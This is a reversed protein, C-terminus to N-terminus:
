KRRLSTSKRVANLVGSRTREKEKEKPQEREMEKTRIKRRNEEEEKLRLKEIERNIRAQTREAAADYVYRVKHHHEDSSSSLSATDDNVNNGNPLHNNISDYNDFTTPPSSHPFSSASFSNLSSTPSVPQSPVGLTDDDARRKGLAKASPVMPGEDDTPSEDSDPRTTYVAGYTSGPYHGHAQPGWGSMLSNPIGTPRPPHPLSSSSNNAATTYLFNRSHSYSHSHTHRVSSPPSPSRIPSPSRSRTRTSSPIPSRPGLPPLPPPALHDRENEHLHNPHHIEPIPPPPPIGVLPSGSGGGGQELQVHELQAITRRDMRWDYKSKEEAQRELGVRTLDEYMRLADQLEGNTRLIAALLKEAETEKVVEGQELAEVRSKEAQATAWPIQAFILEHSNMCKQHFEQIVDGDLDQPKAFTLSEQLLAANGSGLKCEQFLRRIDEELPIIRNRSSHHKKPKRPKDPVSPPPEHAVPQATSPNFMADNSDFPVGEDPKDVPKIKRWLGKFGDKSTHSGSAFAAAAIVDILRERVVPSTRSSTILDEITELFKKSTSQNIFTESSNRLMIAWLRAAALQAPPEGYKFERRLARVAEKASGESSSARECVEMVLTWDESSTATLYGIMRTLEAEATASGIPDRTLKNAREKPPPQDKHAGWFPGKKKHQQQTQSQQQQQQPPVEEEPTHTPDLARLIGLAAPSRGEKRTVSHTSPLQQPSTPRQAHISPLSDSRANHPHPNPLLEEQNHPTPTSPPLVMSWRDTSDIRRLNRGARPVPSNGNPANQSTPTTAHAAYIPTDALIPESSPTSAKQPQKKNEIGFLKRM